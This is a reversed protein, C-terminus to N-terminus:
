LKYTLMVRVCACMCACVCVSTCYVWYLMVHLSHSNQSVESYSAHMSHLVRWMNLPVVFRCETLFFVIKVNSLLM